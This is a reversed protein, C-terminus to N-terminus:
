KPRGCVGGIFRRLDDVIREGSMDQPPVCTAASPVDRDKFGCDSCRGHLDFKGRKPDLPRHCIPCERPLELSKCAACVEGKNAVPGLCRPCSYCGVTVNAHVRKVEDSTLERDFSQAFIVDRAKEFPPQDPVVDLAMNLRRQDPVYFVGRSDPDVTMIGAQYMWQAMNEDERKTYWGRRGNLWQESVHQLAWGESTLKGDATKLCVMDRVRFLCGLKREVVGLVAVRAGYRTGPVERVRLRCGVWPEHEVTWDLRGSESRTEVPRHWGVLVEAGPTIRPDGDLDEWASGSGEAWTNETM